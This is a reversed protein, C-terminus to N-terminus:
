APIVTKQQTRAAKEISVRNLEDGTNYEPASKVKDKNVNLEVKKTSMDIQTIWNTSIMTRKAMPNWNSADVIMYTVTWDADDVILDEAHGIDGDMADVHYEMVENM